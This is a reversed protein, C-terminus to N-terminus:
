IPPWLIFAGRAPRYIDAAPTVVAEYNILLAVWLQCFGLLHVVNDNRHLPAYRGRILFEAAKANERRSAGLFHGAGNSQSISSRSEVPVKTM